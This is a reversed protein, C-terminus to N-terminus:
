AFRIMLIVPVIFSAIYVLLILLKKLLSMDNQINTQLVSNVHQLILPEAVSYQYVGPQVGAYKKPFSFILCDRILWYNRDPLQEYSLHYNIKEHDLYSRIKQHRYENYLELAVLVPVIFMIPNFLALYGLAIISIIGFVLRIIQNQRFFLTEVLRGGDLPYFPLCNLLNIYLFSIALMKLTDSHLDLNLYFIITGIIIGPLPGAMIILSLQWQSVEQKKGSTFAGLLPVIFIKVNTYNFIKMCLFHGLEHVIIVVMIAAIYAINQEFLFYFLMAYVLLSMLSRVLANKKQEAVVPKPPYGGAAYSSGPGPQFFEEM